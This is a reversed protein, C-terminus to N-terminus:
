AYRWYAHPIPVYTWGVSDHQVRCYPRTSAGYSRVVVSRTRPRGTQTTVHEAWDVSLMLVPLYALFLPIFAVWDIVFLRFITYPSPVDYIFFLIKGVINFHVVVPENPTIAPHQKLIHVNHM